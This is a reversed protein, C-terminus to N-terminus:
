INHSLIRKIIFSEALEMGVSLGRYKALVKISEISRAHPSPRLETM